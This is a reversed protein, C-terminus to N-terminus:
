SFNILKRESLLSQYCLINIQSIYLLTFVRRSHLPGSLANIFGIPEKKRM